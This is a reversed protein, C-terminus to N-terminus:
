CEVFPIKQWLSHLTNKMRNSCTKLSSSGHCYKSGSNAALPLSTFGYSFGDARCSYYAIMLPGIINQSCLWRNSVSASNKQSKSTDM